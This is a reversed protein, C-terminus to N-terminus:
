SLPHAFNPILSVKFEYKAGHQAFYRALWDRLAERSDSSKVKEVRDKMDDLVPFLAMHGYWDGFRFASQTYFSHSVMNTNPLMDASILRRHASIGVILDIL